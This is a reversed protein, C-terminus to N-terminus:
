IGLINDTPKLFSCNKNNNKSFMWFCESYFGHRAFTRFCVVVSFGITKFVTEDRGDCSIACQTAKEQQHQFSAAGKTIHKISLDELYVSSSYAYLISKIFPVFIM